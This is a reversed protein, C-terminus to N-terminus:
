KGTGRWRIAERMRETSVPHAPKKLMGKLSRVDEIVPRIAFEGEAIEVFEISDGADIGLRKRVDIPITIQGKSTIKSITM